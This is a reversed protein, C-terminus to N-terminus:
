HLTKEPRDRQPGKTGIYLGIKNHKNIQFRPTRFEIEIRPKSNSGIHLQHYKKQSKYKKQVRNM